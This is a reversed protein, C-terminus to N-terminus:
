VVSPCRCSCRSQCIPRANASAASGGSSMARAPASTASSAACSAALPSARTRASARAAAASPAATARAATASTATLKVATAPSGRTASATLEDLAQDLETEVHRHEIERLADLSRGVKGATAREKEPLRELEFLEVPRDRM